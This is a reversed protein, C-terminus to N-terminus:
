DTEEVHPTGTSIDSRRRVGGRSSYPRRGDTRRPAAADIGRALGSVVTVGLHALDRSLEETLHRGSATAKRSGVVAVAQHDARNLLGSIYLLPPPDSITKLRPPYIEDQFTIVSLRLQKLKKLEKEISERSSQDPGQRIARALVADVRGVEMLRELSSSLVSEPSGLLQVLRCFTADGVGRVARLLLWFRLSESHVM